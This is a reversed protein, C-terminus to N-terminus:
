RTLHPVQSHLLLHNNLHRLCVRPNLPPMNTGTEKSQLALFLNSKQIRNIKSESGGVGQWASFCQLCHPPASERHPYPLFLRPPTLAVVHLFLTSYSSSFLDLNPQTPSSVLSITLNLSIVSPVVGSRTKQASSCRLGKKTCHTSTTTIWICFIQCWM